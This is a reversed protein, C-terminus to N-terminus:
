TNQPSPPPSIVALDTLAFDNGKCLLPEGSVRALAYSFCDGFNLGANHRGRGYSRYAERATEAQEVSVPVIRIKALIIFRDLEKLTNDGYHRDLVISTEVMSAASMIRLADGLLAAEFWESDPEKFLIAVVASSDIVM